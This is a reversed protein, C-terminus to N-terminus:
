GNRWYTLTVNFFLFNLALSDSIVQPEDWIVEIDQYRDFGLAFNRFSSRNFNVSLNGRDFGV